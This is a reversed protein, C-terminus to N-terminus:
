RCIRLLSDRVHSNVLSCYFIVPFIASLMLSICIPCKCLLGRVFLEVCEKFVSRIVVTLMLLCPVTGGESGGNSETWLVMLAM